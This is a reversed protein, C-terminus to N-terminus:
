AGTVATVIGAPLYAAGVAFGYVAYDRGLKSVVDDSIVNPGIEHWGAAVGNTVINTGDALNPDEVPLLSPQPVLFASEVSESLDALLAYVDSAVVWATAPSGTAALVISNAERIFARAQKITPAAPLTAEGTGDAAFRAGAAADTVVGYAALMIRVYADVYSPDSRMILQLSLDSGGAYTVITKSASKISVKASTVDTKETAQVGVLTALDGDFYPWTLSMGSEPLGRSGGLASILPRGNDVIGKIDRLWGPPVVGPNDTTIQNVWERTESGSAM